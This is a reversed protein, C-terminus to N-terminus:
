AAKPTIIRAKHVGSKRDYSFQVGFRTALLRRIGFAILMVIPLIIQLAAPLTWLLVIGSDIQLM